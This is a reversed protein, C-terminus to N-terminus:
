PQGDEAYLNARIDTLKTEVAEPIVILNGKNDQNAEAVLAYDAPSLVFVTAYMSWHSTGCIEACRVRYARPKPNAATHSADLSDPVFVPTFRLENFMYGYGPSTENTFYGETYPELYLKGFDIEANAQDYPMVDQKVRFEPVWFSHIVDRSQMALHIPQDQAVYLDPSYVGLDPYYFIWDWKYGQVYVTRETTGEDASVLDFYLNWNWIAFIIVTVIPVVTWIIEIATNGHIHPADTEDGPQRRFVSVIYLMPVVIISFLFAILAFNALFMPELMHAEKSAAVPREFFSWPLVIETFPINGALMPYLLVTSVLILVSVVSFHKANNRM